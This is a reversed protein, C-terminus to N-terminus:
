GGEAIAVPVSESMEPHVRLFFLFYPILSPMLVHPFPSYISSHLRFFSRSMKGETQSREQQSERVRTEGRRWGMMWRCTRPPPEAAAPHPQARRSSTLGACRPRANPHGPSQPDPHGGPDAEPARPFHHWPETCRQPFLSVLNVLTISSFTSFNMPSPPPPQTSRAVSNALQQAVPEPATHKPRLVDGDDSVMAVMKKVKHRVRM